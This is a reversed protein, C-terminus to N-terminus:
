HFSVEGNPREPSEWLSQAASPGFWPSREELPEGTPDTGPGAVFLGEVLLFLESGEVM